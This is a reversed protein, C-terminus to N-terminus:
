GHRPANAPWVAYADIPDPEWEPLVHVVDGLAVDHEVLFEPIVALGAGTRMLRYMAQADNTSLRPEPKLSVQAGSRNRFPMPANQVPTLAIWDWDLLQRPTEPRERGAMYGASAVLRRRSTFLVRSTATTKGGPGFRVALDFGDDILDKRTDSFDLSLRIRPHARSFAAISDLLPSLSLVSPATIRLEGSPERASLSLEAIEDEVAELMRRTAALLKAGEPTLTLKRTTRYLLAVGLRDELESIHHSVVSPSLRLERAAGRFSGHDIVKAFIAMQRLHDLM